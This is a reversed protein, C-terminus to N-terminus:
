EGAVASLIGAETYKQQLMRQLAPQVIGILFSDVPPVYCLIGPRRGIAVISGGVTTIPVTQGVLKHLDAANVLAGTPIAKQTRGVKVYYKRNRVIVRGEKTVPKRSPM